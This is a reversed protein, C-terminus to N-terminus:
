PVEFANFVYTFGGTFGLTPDISTLGAFVGGDIRFSGTTYRAGFLMRGRTETGPNAEGARTSVRGRFEGVIEAENTLARAFSVAYNFVDNQTHGSTPDGLIGLGLNGVLRISQVTKAILLDANFDMTDLGLGSENGANPLRTAFRVAMAARSPGEPFLRVKTAIVIDEVDTTTEDDEDLDVLGSLPAPERDEIALRNFIGGDIQLDAIAGIGISVGLTPLQLLNGELGSVTYTQNNSWSMGGEFLIRGAGIPEPDETALPRQQASASTAVGFTLLVAVSWVRVNM